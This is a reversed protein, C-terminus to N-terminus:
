FLREAFFNNSIFDLFMLHKLLRAIFMPIFQLIDFVKFYFM